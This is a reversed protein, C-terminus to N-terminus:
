NLSDHRSPDYVGNSDRQDYKPLMNEFLGVLQEKFGGVDVLLNENSWNKQEDNNVHDGVLNCGCVRFTAHQACFVHVFLKAANSLVLEKLVKDEKVVGTAGNGVFQTALKENAGRKTAPLRELAHTM